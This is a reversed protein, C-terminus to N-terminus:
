FISLLPILSTRIQELDDFLILFFDEKQAELHNRIEDQGYFYQILGIM